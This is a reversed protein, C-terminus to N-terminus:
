NEIFSRKKVSRFANKKTEKKLKQPFNTLSQASQKSLKESSLGKNEKTEEFKKNKFELTMRKKKKKASFHKFSLVDKKFTTLDKQVQTTNEIKTFFIQETQFSLYPFILPKSWEMRGKPILQFLKKFMKLLPPKLFLKLNDEGVKGEKQVSIKDKSGIVSPMRPLGRETKKQKDIFLSIIEERNRLELSKKSTLKKEYVCFSNEM